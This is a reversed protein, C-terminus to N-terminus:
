GAGQEALSANEQTIEDLRRDGPEDGRHREVARGVRAGSKLSPPPSRTPPSWSRTRAGRRGLRVLAVGRGGGGVGAESILATIEKAATGVTAGAHAGGPSWRLARAPRGARAAEVAANLALLNTQLRDRRHRLHHGHDQALLEEIRGMASVASRVVEGGAQAVGPRRRPWNPPRDRRSPRPSRPLPSSSPRRRPRRLLRGAAGHPEGPGRQRHSRAPRAAASRSEQRVSDIIGSFTELLENVGEALNRMAGSADNLVIRASLDNDKAAEVVASAAKEIAMSARIQATVDTAYKVVKFPKGNMDLIPNYSAQIWVERGGKGIRKFEGSAFEGRALKDWFLRYEASASYDPDVFMGHHQGQVEGLSYGLTNLFNENATLIRGDLSFEIVAQSKSIASLQGEYDAAQQRAGTIDTAYKVM